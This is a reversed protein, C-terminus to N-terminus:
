TKESTSSNAANRTMVARLLMWICAANFFALVLYLAAYVPSRATIVRFSAFLLVAWFVYFLATIPAM